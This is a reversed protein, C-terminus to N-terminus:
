IMPPVWPATQTGDRAMISEPLDNNLIESCNFPATVQGMARRSAPYSVKAVPFHCLPWGDKAADNGLALLM